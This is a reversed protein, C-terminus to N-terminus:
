RQIAIRSFYLHYIRPRDISSSVPQDPNVFINDGHLDPHWLVPKSIEKGKPSLLKAVKLVNRLAEQKRQATPQYQGPGYFLGPPRPFESFSQLCAVERNARASVYDDISARIM